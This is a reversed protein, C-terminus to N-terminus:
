PTTSSSNQKLQEVDRSLADIRGSLEKVAQTADTAPRAALSKVTREVTDVRDSLASVDGAAGAGAGSSPQSGSRISDVQSKLRDIRDNVRTVREDTALGNRSGGTGGSDDQVLSYIAVGLAVVSLLGVIALWTRLSAIADELRVLVLSPDAAPAVYREEVLPAPAPQPRLPETPRDPPPPTSM